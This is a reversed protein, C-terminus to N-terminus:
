TKFYKELIDCGTIITTNNTNMANKSIPVYTYGHGFSFRYVISLRREV